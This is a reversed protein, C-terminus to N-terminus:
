NRRHKKRLALTRQKLQPTKGDFVFVPKIGFFLLKCIRRLFGDLIAYDNSTSQTTYMFQIAWISVDIALTKGEFDELSVRRAAPALHLWLGKVGM